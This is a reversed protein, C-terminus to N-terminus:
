FHETITVMGNGGLNYGYGSKRIAGVGPAEITRDTQMNSSGWFTGGGMSTGAADHSRGGYGGSLNIDGGSGMGPVSGPCQEGGGANISRVGDNYSSPNGNSTISAPGAGVQITASEAELEFAAMSVGGGGGAKGNGTTSECGGGSATVTVEIWNTKPDFVHTHQGSNRYVTTKLFM